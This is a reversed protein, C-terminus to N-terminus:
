QRQLAETIVARIPISQPIGLSWTGWPVEFGAGSLPPKWNFCAYVTVTTPYHTDAGTSGGAVALSSAKDDGDAPATERNPNASQTTMPAPCALANPDSQPDVGGITCDTFVVGPTTPRQDRTLTAPDVFGSWCATLSVQSAAMGWVKSRAATTMNPWGSEPADCRWYVNGSPRLTMIPDLQSVVPCQSTVSHVIAFRAGERAANALQENYFVYLGYVIIAFILLVLLPFVLAFEVLAQGRTKPRLRDILRM